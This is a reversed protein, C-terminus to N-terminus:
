AGDPCLPTTALTAQLGSPACNALPPAPWSLPPLPSSNTQSACPASRKCGKLPGAPMTNATGQLLGPLRSPPPPLSPLGGQHATPRPSHTVIRSPCGVETWDRPTLGSPCRSALQPSSLAM